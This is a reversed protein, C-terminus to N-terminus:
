LDDHALLGRGAFTLSLYTALEERAVVLLDRPLPSPLEGTLRRNTLFLCVVDFQEAWLVMAQRANEVWKM